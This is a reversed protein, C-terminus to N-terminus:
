RASKISAVIREISAQQKEAPELVADVGEQVLESMPRNLDAALQKLTTWKEADVNLSQKTTATRTKKKSM